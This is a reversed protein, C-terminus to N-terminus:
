LTEEALTAPLSMSAKCFYLWARVDIRACRARM